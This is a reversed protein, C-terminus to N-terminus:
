LKGIKTINKVRDIFYSDSAAPYGVYDYGNYVVMFGFAEWYDIYGVHFNNGYEFCVVDNKKLKM